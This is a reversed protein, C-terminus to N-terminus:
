APKSRSALNLGLYSPCQGVYLHGKGSRDTEVLPRSSAHPAFHISNVKFSDPINLHGPFTGSVGGQRYTKHKHLIQAPAGKGCWPPM